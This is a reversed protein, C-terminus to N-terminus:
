ARHSSGLEQRYMPDVQLLYIHLADRMIDAGAKLSNNITLREISKNMAPIIAFHCQYPFRSTVKQRAKAAPRAAGAVPKADQMNPTATM